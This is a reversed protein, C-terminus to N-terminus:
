THARRRRYLYIWRHLGDIQTCRVLEFRRAAATEFHERTLHSYLGDRGRVIRNFMPDAPGVYEILAFDRTIDAILDLLDELPIRETVLIHHIVALLMTLDFGMERTRDLFSPHEQNRWGIAPTPRTLDAVLPLIDLGSADARRWLAGVVAPDSDIAVVSTGPRSAALASFHGENAGIDLVRAPRALDLAESVFAEKQALQAPSYLSKHDLYSTWASDSPTPAVARLHKACNNLLASLIFHAQEPSAAPKPHYLEANEGSNNRGSLWKPLTVLSLFPSRLRRLPGAWRYLTEPELGDRSGALLRDPHLAFSRSALLPLLFTRVFQAYPRWTRDLVDRPEFSLVDVFVPRPGRFLVNYPTADKLGFGDELSQRALDLTLEGAAHLMEAPWEYAFSPFPIREHEVVYDAYDADVRTSAVLKGADIAKRATRTALFAEFGPVAAPRIARLIRGRHRILVGAPDRFSPVPAAEDVVTM